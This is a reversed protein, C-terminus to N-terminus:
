QIVLCGYEDSLQTAFKTVITRADELNGDRTSLVELLILDEPSVVRLAQGELTGRLPRQMLTAAYRKSRPTILDVMNLKGDGVLTLRSITLGGFRIETFAIVTTLGISALADQGARATVGAVALDADRTERPEGFMALAMGGYVLVEIGAADFAAVAALIVSAPDDLDVTM